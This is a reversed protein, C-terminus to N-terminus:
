TFCSPRNQFNRLKLPPALALPACSVFLLSSSSSFLLLYYVLVGGGPAQSRAPSRALSLSGLPFIPLPAVRSRFTDYLILRSPFSYLRVAWFHSALRSVHSWFWLRLVLFFISRFFIDFQQPQVLVSILHSSTLHSSSTSHFGRSSTAPIRSQSHAFPASILHSELNTQRSLNLMHVSSLPSSLHLRIPTHVHPRTSTNVYRRPSMHVHGLRQLTPM